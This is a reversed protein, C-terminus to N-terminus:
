SSRRKKQVMRELEGLEEPSVQGLREYINSVAAEGFASVLRDVTRVVIEKQIASGSQCAYVYHPGGKGAVKERTLLGKRYLRDLTTSLTTYAIRRGGKASELIESVSGKGLAKVLAMVAAELEGIGTAEGGQRDSGMSAVVPTAVKICEADRFM